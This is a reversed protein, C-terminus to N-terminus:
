HLMEGRAMALHHPQHHHGSVMIGIFGLGRIHRVEQPNSATVTLLVGNPLPETKASWGNLHTQEIEHAHAPVMRMIAELTRGIGTVAVEIGADIPKAAADAKLTVDSMDILHQRLAEPNVKSWDTKPDAELMRVIEQIAGFADQGPLTPGGAAAQGGAMGMMPHGHQPMMTALHDHIHDPGPMPSGTMPPPGVEDGQALAGAIPMTLAAVSLAAVAWVVACARMFSNMSVERFLFRQALGLGPFSSRM